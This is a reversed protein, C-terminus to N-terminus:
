YAMFLSVVLDMDSTAHGVADLSVVMERVDEHFEIVNNKSDKMDLSFLDVKTAFTTTGTTVFTNEIVQKFMVPGDRDISPAQKLLKAAVRSNVSKEICEFMRTSGISARAETHTSCTGSQRALCKAKLVSM